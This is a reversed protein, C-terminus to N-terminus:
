QPDGPRTMPVHAIGDEIFEPGSAQYGFREYFHQLYSQADLVTTVRGELGLVAELLQSSLKQGRASARTAVRGLRRGEEDSLSRITATPGADDAYWYHTTGPELDRGDLEPYPCEQEVM